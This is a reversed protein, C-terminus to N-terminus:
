LFHSRDPSCFLGNAKNVSTVYFESEYTNVISKRNSKLRNSTARLQPSAPHNIDLDFEDGSLV